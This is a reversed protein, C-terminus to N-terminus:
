GSPAEAFLDGLLTTGSRGCGIIFIPAGVDRQTKLRIKARIQARFGRVAYFATRALPRVREPVCERESVQGACVVAVNSSM